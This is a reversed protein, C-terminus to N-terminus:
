SVCVLCSVEKKPQSSIFYAYSKHFNGRQFCNGSFARGHLVICKHTESELQQVFDDLRIHGVLQIVLNNHQTVTQLQDFLTLNTIIRESVRYLFLDFVISDEYTLSFNSISKLIQFRNIIGIGSILKM